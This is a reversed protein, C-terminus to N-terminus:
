EGWGRRSARVQEAHRDAALVQDYTLFALRAATYHSVRRGGDFHPLLRWDHGVEGRRLMRVGKDTRVGDGHRYIGLRPAACHAEQALAEERRLVAERYGTM